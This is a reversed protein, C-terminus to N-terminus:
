LADTPPCALNERRSTCLQLYSFFFLFFLLRRAKSQWARPTTAVTCRAAAGLAPAGLVRRLAMQSVVLHLSPSLSPSLTQTPTHSLFQSSTALSMFIFIESIKRVGDNFCKAVCGVHRSVDRDSVRLYRCECVLGCKDKEDHDQETERFSFDRCM